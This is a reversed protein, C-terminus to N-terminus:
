IPMLEMLYDPELGFYDMVVDELDQLNGGEDIIFNIEDQAENIREQASESTENDRRMLVEKITEM